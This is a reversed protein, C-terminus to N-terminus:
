RMTQRWGFGVGSTITSKTRGPQFSGPVIIAKCAAKHLSVPTTATWGPRLNPSVELWGSLGSSFAAPSAVRHLAHRVPNTGYEFALYDHHRLAFGAPVGGFLRIERGGGRVSQLRMGAGASVAGTPDLRPYPRRIDHIMFSAGARRAVDLMAIVEDAEDPTMDGLAIEGQWLRTGLEATLIEGGKTESIERAEPLDFTIQSVPLLDMFQAATLPFSYAM